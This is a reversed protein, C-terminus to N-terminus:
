DRRAPISGVLTRMRPENKARRSASLRCASSTMPQRPSRSKPPTSAPLSTRSIADKLERVDHTPAPFRLTLELSNDTLRWYVRPEFDTIERGYQREISAAAQRARAALQATHRAASDLLLKEVQSRDDQYRVPVM